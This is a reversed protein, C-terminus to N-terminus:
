RDTEKRALFYLAFPRTGQEVVGFGADELRARWRDADQATGFYGHGHIMWPMAVRVWGDVNLVMLLFDGGPRLVRAVEGLARKTDDPRLHDIAYASVAAEFAADELPMDRMDGVRVTVREQVGAVRANALLREATNDAIGFYGSYIDLATVSARARSQLVMLTSRGSGAGVDLVRGEGARLFAETPLLMPRNFRAVHHVILAGVLAWASLIAATASAWRPWGRRWLVLAAAAFVLGAILHGRTWPWAYGFDYFFPETM